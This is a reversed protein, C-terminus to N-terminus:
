GHCKIILTDDNMEALKHNNPCRIMPTQTSLLLKTELPYKILKVSVLIEDSNKQSKVYQQDNRVWQSKYRGKYNM